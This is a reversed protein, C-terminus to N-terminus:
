SFTACCPHSGSQIRPLRRRVTWFSPGGARYFHRLPRPSITEEALPFRVLFIRGPRSPRARSAAPQEDFGSEEPKSGADRPTIQGFAKAVPFNDVLAEVSPGLAANELPSELEQGAIV